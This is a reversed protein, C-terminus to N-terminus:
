GRRALLNHRGHWQHRRSGASVLITWEMPRHPLGFSRRSGPLEGGCVCRTWSSRDGRRHQEGWQRPRGGAAVVRCRGLPGREPRLVRRRQHLQRRRLPRRQRGLRHDAGPVVWGQFGLTGGGPAAVPHWGVRGCEDGHWSTHVHRLQRSRLRQRQQGRRHQERVRAPLRQALRSQRPYRLHGSGVVVLNHWGLGGPQPVLAPEYVDTLQCQHTSLVSQGGCVGQGGCDHDGACQEREAQLGVLAVPRRGLARDPGQARGSEGFGQADRGRVGGQGSHRRLRLDRQLVPFRRLRYVLWDVTSGSGVGEHGVTEPIVNTDRFNYWTSGDFRALSKAWVGNANTFGGAVVLTGNDVALSNRGVWLFGGVPEGAIGPQGIANNWRDVSFLSRSPSVSVNTVAFASPYLREPDPLVVELDPGADVLPPHNCPYVTVTVDDHHSLHTDSASLRLMYSGPQSFSATTVAPANTVTPQSFTVTGPGSLASWVGCLPAGAPLGDDTIVGRLTIQNTLGVVLDGGAHAVPPQNMAPTRVAILVEAFSSRDTDTALIRLVYDGTQSFAVSTATEHPHTFSVTGPGSALTWEMTVPANEPLGDDLVTASLNALAPLLVLQRPGATVAPAQNVPLVRVGLEDFANTLSDDATLRLRYTGTEYFRATTVAQSSQGFEMLGIGDVVSWTVTVPVGAPVGDDTVRGELLLEEGVTVCLDPGADIVPAGNAAIIVEDSSDALSDSATIRLVYLGSQGFRVTTQLNASAEFVADGPGSVKSWTVTPADAGPWGDDTVSARLSASLTSNTQDSGADVIPARNALVGVEDFSSALSDNATLRLVYFGSESFTASTRPSSPDEFVVAGPGSVKSWAVRHTANSPLGDDSMYGDLVVGAPLTNTQNPGADVAPPANVTILVEDSVAFFFDDATLRLTYVGSHSFTVPTVLAQSDGIVSTGPGGVQSWKTELFPSFGDDLVSGTLTVTNGPLSLTQDPGANVLPADNVNTVSLEVRGVQSTLSGDSAVFIFADSGHFDSRPLYTLSPPAGSLTGNTPHSLVTFFLPSGEVDAGSLRISLVEDEGSVLAQSDVVPPDNVPQITISVPTEGSELIGDSVKFTFTDAGQFDSLPTYRLAPPAGSLLGYSPPREISYLLADGDPDSGELVLEVAVDEDTALATPVGLPAQNPRNVTILVDDCASLEGDSVTLRVVYIGPLDMSVATNLSRSDAFHALGPGGVQSWTSSLTGDAPLGDDTVTGSLVGSAPWSVTQDPGAHVNPAVNQAGCSVLGLFRAHIRNQGPLHYGLLQVRAFGSIHYATGVGQGQVQDWVPVIIPVSQLGELAQRIQKNNSVGPRGQVWDGQTLQRDSTDRPNVYTESDGPPTLSQILAPSGPSGSWSLWGFNGPQEGNLIDTLNSGAPVGEISRASLAIPYVECPQAWLPPGSILILFHGLKFWLLRGKFIGVQRGVRKWIGQGVM